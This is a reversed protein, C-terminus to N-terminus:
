QFKPPPSTIKHWDIFYYLFRGSFTDSEIIDYCVVNGHMNETNLAIPQINAYPKSNKSNIGVSFDVITM